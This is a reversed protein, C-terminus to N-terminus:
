WHLSNTEFSKVFTFSIPLKANLDQLFICFRWNGDSNVDIPSSANASHSRSAILIGLVAANISLVANLFAVTFASPIPLNNSYWPIFSIKVLMLRM